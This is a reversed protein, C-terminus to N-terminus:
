DHAGAKWLIIGKNDFAQTFTEIPIFAHDQTKAAKGSPNNIYIGSCRGDLIQFGIALVLHGGPEEDGLIKDFRIIAPNVSIIAMKNQLLATCLQSITLLPATRGLLGHRKGLALLPKHFWGHDRFRGAKDYVIYGGLRQGEHTLDAISRDAALKYYDLVMKLCVIGCIRLVWFGYKEKTVFGFSKWNPDDDTPRQKELVAKVLTPSAVQSRYPVPKGVADIRYDGDALQRLRQQASPEIFARNLLRNGLKYVRKIM